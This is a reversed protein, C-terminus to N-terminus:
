YNRGPFSESMKIVYYGQGHFRGSDSTNYMLKQRFKILMFM